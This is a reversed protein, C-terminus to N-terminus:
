AVKRKIFVILSISLGLVALDGRVVSACGKQQNLGESSNTIQESNEQSPNKNVSENQTPIKNASDNTDADITPKNIEEKNNEESPKFGNFGKQTIIKSFDVYCINVDVGGTIGEVKGSDTCQWMKVNSDYSKIKPRNSAKLILENPTKNSYSSYYNAQWFEIHSVTSLPTIVENFWNTSAYIMAYYGNDLLVKCFAECASSAFKEMKKEEADYVIPYTFTEPYKDLWKVCNEAEAIADAVSDAYSYFYAGIDLGVSKAGKLYNEFNKDMSFDYGIRLMVFDVGSSKVSKWDIEGQHYSVDIGVKVSDKANAKVYNNKTGLNVAIICLFATLLAIIKHKTM